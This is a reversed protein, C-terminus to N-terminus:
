KEHNIVKNIELMGALFADDGNIFTTQISLAHCARQYRVCLKKDGVLYVHKTQIARIEYGILLGSLYDIIESEEIEGFLRHTRAMFLQHTLNNTQSEAVGRYFASESQSQKPIDRGLISQTSLISFLEGTMYTSFQILQNNSFKIHKSHTGPFLAMANTQNIIKALGFLQVEEGRMVDKSGLTNTYSVGPVITAKAGWPLIFSSVHEALNGVNVPAIIYPVSVWGQDSGVMGAMVIPFSKFDGLWDDLVDKLSESFKNDTIQLLGLKRDIKDILKGSNDMAFARFNTSGWDIILWDINNTNKM